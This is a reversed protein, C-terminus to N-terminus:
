VDRVNRVSADDMKAPGCSNGGHIGSFGVATVTSEADAIEVNVKLEM